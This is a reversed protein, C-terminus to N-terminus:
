RLAFTVSHMCGKKVVSQLFEHLEKSGLEQPKKMIQEDGITLWMSKALDPRDLAFMAGNLCGVSTGAIVGPQWGLEQLAEYVGVQYSGKAGGGALVLGKVM